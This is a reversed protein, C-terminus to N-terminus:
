SLYRFITLSVTVPWPRRSITGLWLAGERDETTLCFKPTLILQGNSLYSISIEDPTQSQSGSMRAGLEMRSGSMRAGLEM